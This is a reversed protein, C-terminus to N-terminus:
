SALVLLGVLFLPSSEGVIQGHQLCCLGLAFHPSALATESFLSLAERKEGKARPVLNLPVYCM